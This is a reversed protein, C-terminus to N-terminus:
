RQEDKRRLKGTRIARQIQDATRFKSRDVDGEVMDQMFQFKMRTWLTLIQDQGFAPFAHEGDLSRGAESPDGGLSQLLGRFRRLDQASSRLRRVAREAGETMDPAEEAIKALFEQLPTEAELDVLDSIGDMLGLHESKSPEWGFHGNRVNFAFDRVLESHKEVATRLQRGVTLLRIADWGSEGYTAELVLGTMPMVAPGNAALEAEMDARDDSWQAPGDVGAVWDIIDIARPPMINADDSDPSPVPALPKRVDFLIAVPPVRLARSIVLLETVTIDDRRGNEINAIVSRSMGAEEALEQASLGERKRYAAIRPGIGQLNQTM